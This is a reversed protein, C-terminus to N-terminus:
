KQKRFGSTEDDILRTIRRLKKTQYRYWLYVAIVAGMLASFSILLYFPANENYYNVSVSSLPNNWRLVNRGYEDEEFSDPNPSATGIIRNGTTLGDPLIIQIAVAGDNVTISTSGMHPRLTYVLVGTFNEEFEITSSSRASRLTYDPNALAPNELLMDIGERTITFNEFDEATIFYIDTFGPAEFSFLNTDRLLSVEKQNSILRIVQVASSDSNVFYTGSEVVREQGAIMPVFINLEYIKLVDSINEAETSNNSDNTLMSLCGSLSVVAIILAFLLFLFLGKKM